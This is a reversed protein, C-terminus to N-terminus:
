KEFSITYGISPLIPFLSLKVYKRYRNGSDDVESDTYVTFINFHNYVNYVSVNLQHTVRKGKRTYNMGIDLHHYAPLVYNNKNNYNTNMGQNGTIPANAADYSSVTNDSAYRADPTTIRWGTGYTWAVSFDFYKKLKYQLVISVDHRRDYKYYFPLGYNLEPFQRTSWSLNYKLWSTFQGQTKAFFFEVGYAKGTGDNLLQDEWPIKDLIFTSRYKYDSLHHMTKYYADVSATYGKPNDYQVGGSYQWSTEPGIKATAPVWVDNQVDGTNNTLLHMPQVTQLVSARMSISPIPHYILEFRPQPFFFTKGKAHYVMLQVGTKVDVKKNWTFLYDAYPYFELVPVRPNHFTDRAYIFRTSDQYAIDVDNVTFARETLKIGYNFHHFVNLHHEFNTQWSNENIRSQTNYFTTGISNIFKNYDRFVSGLEQDSKLRYFSFTYYNSISVKKLNIKWEASSTTNMWNLKKNTIDETFTTARPFSKSQDFTYFDNGSYLSWSLTQKDNIRHQIAANLDYFYYKLSGNDGSKNFQHQSIPGTFLGVHCERFSFNMSTKEKKLPGEIHFKSTIAGLSFDGKWHETNGFNPEIDIVSSLRGGYQVPIYNKYIDMQSLAETTFVSLFGYIHSVNYVPAHHFLLLNQDPSGGRVFIGRAGEQGSQIGPTLLVAKLIDKEGMFAPLREVSASSLSTIGSANMEATKRLREGTVLVENLSNDPNIVLYLNMNKSLHLSKRYTEYGVSSIEFTYDGEKLQLEFLGNSDSIALINNISDYINAYPIIQGNSKDAIKGKLSFYNQAVLAPYGGLVIILLIYKLCTRLM